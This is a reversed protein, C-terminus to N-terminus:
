GVGQQCAQNVQQLEQRDQGQDNVKLPQGPQPDAVNVGHRRLCRALRVMRDTEGPDQPNSAEPRFKRCAEQAAQIQADTSGQPNITIRDSGPAPDPVNIGHQRMCQAFKVVQDGASTSTPVATHQGVSGGCGALVAAVALAAVALLTLTKCMAALM